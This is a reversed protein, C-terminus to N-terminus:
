LSNRSDLSPSSVPAETPMSGDNFPVIMFPSFRGDFLQYNRTQPENTKYIFVVLGLWVKAVAIRIPALITTM